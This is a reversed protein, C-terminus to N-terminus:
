KECFRSLSFYKKIVHIPSETFLFDKKRERGSINIIENSKSAIMYSIYYYFIMIIFIFAKIVSLFYHFVFINLIGGSKKNNNRKREGTSVSAL